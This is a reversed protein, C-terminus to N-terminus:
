GCVHHFADDTLGHLSFFVSLLGKPAYWYPLPGLLQKFLNQNLGAFFKIKTYKRNIM